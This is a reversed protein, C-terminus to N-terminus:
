PNRTTDDTRRTTDDTRVTTRDRDHDRDKRGLGALGALGLLGLLGWPFGDDQNGSQQAEGSPEQALVAPAGGLLIVGALSLSVIKKRVRKEEQPRGL